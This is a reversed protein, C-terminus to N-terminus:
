QSQVQLLWCIRGDDIWDILWAGSGFTRRVGRLLMQLRQLHDPLQADPRQWRHLQPLPNSRGNITISDYDQATHTVATGKMDGAIMEMVLVDRRGANYRSWLECLSYSLPAPVAFDMDLIPPTTTVAASRVAVLNDLLPFRISEYLTQHLWTPHPAHVRGNEVVIVGETLLLQYLEDLLIAGAPVPLSSQAARDLLQGKEAVARKKARGSGLWIFPTKM